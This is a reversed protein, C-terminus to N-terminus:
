ATAYFLKTILLYKLPTVVTKGTKMAENYLVNQSVNSHKTTKLILNQMM